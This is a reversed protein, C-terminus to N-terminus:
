SLSPANSFLRNLITTAMTFNRPLCLRASAGPFVPVGSSVCACLSLWVGAVLWSEEVQAHSPWCQMCVVLSPWFSV